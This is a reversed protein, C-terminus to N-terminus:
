REQILFFDPNMGRRHANAELESCLLESSLIVNGCPVLKTGTIEQLVRARLGCRRIIHLSEKRFRIGQPFSSSFARDM